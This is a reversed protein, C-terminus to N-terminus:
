VNGSNRRRNGGQMHTEVEFSDMEEKTVRKDGVKHAICRSALFIIGYIISGCILIDILLVWPNVGEEKGGFVPLIFGIVLLIFSFLSM